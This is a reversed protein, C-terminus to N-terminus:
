RSVPSLLFKAMSETILPPNSGMTSASVVASCAAFSASAPSYTRERGAPAPHATEGQYGPAQAAGSARRGSKTHVFLPCFAVLVM